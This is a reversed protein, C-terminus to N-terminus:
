IELTRLLVAIGIVGAVAWIVGRSFGAGSMVNFLAVMLLAYVGWIWLLKGACIGQSREM